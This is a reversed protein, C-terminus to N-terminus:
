RLNTTTFCECNEPTSYQNQREGPLKEGMLGHVIKALHQNAVPGKKHDLKVDNAIGTLVDIKGSAEQHSESSQSILKTISQEASDSKQGKEVTQPQTAVTGHQERVAPQGM